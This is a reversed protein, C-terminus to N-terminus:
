LPDETAKCAQPAKAPIALQGTRRDLAFAEAVKAVPRGKRGGDYYVCQVIPITDANGPCMCSMNSDSSVHPAPLAATVLWEDVTETLHARLRAVLVVSLGSADALTEVRYAALGGAEAITRSPSIVGYGTRNFDIAVNVAGDASTEVQYTKGVLDRAPDAAAGEVALLAIGAAILGMRVFGM